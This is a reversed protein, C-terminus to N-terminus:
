LKNTKIMNAEGNSQKAYDTLKTTSFLLTEGSHPM